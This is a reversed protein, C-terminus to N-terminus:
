ARQKLVEVAKKAAQGADVSYIDAGIEECFHQTVPAGGIMILVDDRIGADKCADVVNKMEWVTTTLLSSCCIIDCGEDKVTQVFKEASVDTGLDIVEIGSGEMMVKVLNKGIDHLDGKVTGICAKGLSEANDDVMKPRLIELAAQMAKAALLMEPVFVEGDSFDEGVKNMAVILAEDLIQKPELASAEESELLKVVKSAQGKEVAKAIEFLIDGSEEEDAEAQVGLIKSTDASTEPKGLDFRIHLRNNYKDIEDNIYGDVFKFVTGPGGYTICPIFNSYRCCEILVSKIYRRAEDEKVDSRDIVAGIGGMLAMRGDLQRLLKPVNNEPLVGQWVQIGIEVMDEVIPVLYSDAHHIAIVDRSRIAEYFRRYPEKFFERWIEPKMFLANKTGWDDHSLIVDPHLKDCIHVAYRIRYETICEILEHMEDPHEILATLADEFGMLFHVQEFIGTGMLVTALKGEARIAEAKARPADWDGLAATEIDPLHVYDRWRTIDKLVKNEETIYPTKGPADEPYIIYVGWKDEGEKGPGENERLYLNIPDNGVFGLAEYQKLQREPKGGKKITELFLEAPKM